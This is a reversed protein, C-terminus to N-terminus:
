VWKTQYYPWKIFYYTLEGRDTCAIKSILEQNCLQDKQEYKVTSSVLHIACPSIFSPSVQSSEEQHSVKMTGSPLLCAGSPLCNEVPKNLWLGQLSHYSSIHFLMDVSVITSYFNHPCGTARLNLAKEM